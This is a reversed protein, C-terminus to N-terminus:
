RFYSGIKEEYQSSISEWSYASSLKQGLEAAKPKFGSHTNYFKRLKSKFDQEKVEAWKASPMFINKDVKTSDVKKLDYDLKIWSGYDLFETHASWNTAIVPLGAVAAELLPLGFGEGRTMSILGKIKPNKYLSNMEQRSMDGHLLYVNPTGKHGIEKLLKKLMAETSRRDMSTERGQCTKIVLGVNSDKKFEEVFWKILYFLNKRDTEPTLGTLVGVSLLNFESKLEIGLDSPEQLLEEFYCEGVVDIPTKTSASNLLSNRAHISPVIVHNMKECHVSTWIPNAIDTEVSATIGINTSAITTDWENPLQVQVSVDFKENKKIDSRNVIEGILGSCADSDLYWPTIGWPLVQVKLEINDISSLYKFVQRTHEGYGSKSLAPGRLIVKKM